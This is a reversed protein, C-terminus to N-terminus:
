LMSPVGNSIILNDVVNFYRGHRRIHEIRYEGRLIKSTIIKNSLSPFIDVM